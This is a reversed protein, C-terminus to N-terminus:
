ENYPDDGGSAWHGRGPRPINLERYHKALAGDSLNLEAAIQRMPKTWALEYLEERTLRITSNTTPM